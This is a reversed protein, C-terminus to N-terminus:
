YVQPTKLEVKDGSGIQLWLLVRAKRPCLVGSMYLGKRALDIEGGVFGYTNHATVGAGTRSGVIVPIKAAIPELVKAWQESVHGAGFGAIVLGEYGLPLLQELLLTDACLTAELLAVKQTTRAPWPLISRSDAPRLYQVSNEVVLGAPGVIPSSFAQLAMTHTKRVHLAEHIEANMVVLVGRKRSSESLAVRCADLLNAPGDAGIHGACRMAGTLILPEDHDWLYEFLAATEELTDTGQTIVVGQAGQEVQRKAWSLVHLLFDFDLSASPLLSLSEIRIDTLTKLEPVCTLLAEGGLVPLIGEGAEGHQMSLTGGLTAIAITPRSM